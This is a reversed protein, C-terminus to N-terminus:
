ASGDADRSPLVPAYAPQRAWGLLWGAGPLVRELLRVLVYYVAGVAVTLVASLDEVSVGVNQLLWPGILAVLWPVVTRVISPLV